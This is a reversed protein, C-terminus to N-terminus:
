LFNNDQGHIVVHAPSKKHTLFCLTRLMITFTLMWFISWEVKKPVDLKKARPASCLLKKKGRRGEGREWSFDSLCSRSVLWEEDPKM